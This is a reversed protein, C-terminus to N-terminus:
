SLVEIEVYGPVTPADAGLPRVDTLVAQDLKDTRILELLLAVFAVKNHDDLRGIEDVMALRFPADAALAVSLACYTLAQETGSFMKHTILKGATAMGIEGDQWVLPSRLIGGCLENARVVLPGVAADLLKSQLAAVLKATEKWVECEVRARALEAAARASAAKEARLALLQKYATDATAVEIRKTDAALKAATYDSRAKDLAITLVPVKGAAEAAAANHAVKERLEAVQNAMVKLAHQAGIYLTNKHTWDAVANQYSTHAEATAKDWSAQAQYVESLAVSAATETPNFDLRAQTATKVSKSAAKILTKLGNVVKSQLDVISQGCKSCKVAGAADKLEKQLRTIDAEAQRVDGDLKNAVKAANAVADRAATDDPRNGTATPRAPEPGAPLMKSSAGIKIENELKAIRNQTAELDVATAALEKADNLANLAGQGLLARARALRQEADVPPPPGTLAIQAQGQGTKQMRQVCAASAKKKEGVMEVMSEVWAQPTRDSDTTLTTGNLLKVVEELGAESEPTNDELKVNKVNAVLARVMAEITMDEPLKCRGFLFRTRAPGSLGLFEGQVDLAVPPM